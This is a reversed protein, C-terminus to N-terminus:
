RIEQEVRRSGLEKRHLGDQLVQSVREGWSGLVVIWTQVDSMVDGGGLIFSGGGETGM